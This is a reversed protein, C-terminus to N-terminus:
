SKMEAIKEIAPQLTQYIEKLSAAYVKMVSLSNGKKDMKIRKSCSNIHTYFLSVLTAKKTAKQKATLSSREIELLAKNFYKVIFGAQQNEEAEKYKKSASLYTFKDFDSIKKTPLPGDGQISSMNLFGTLDSSLDSSSSSGLIPTSAGSLSLESRSSSSM